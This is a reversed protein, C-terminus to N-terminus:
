FSCVDVINSHQGKDTLIHDVQSHTKGDPSTWTYKHINHHPFITSVIRNKSTSFNISSGNAMTPKFIDKTGVKASFDGLLIKLHCELFQNFVRELEEYSSDKTDYSENKTSYHM